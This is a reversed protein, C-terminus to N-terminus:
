ETNEGTGDSDELANVAEKEATASSKIGAHVSSHTKDIVGVDDMGEKEDQGRKILRTREIVSTGNSRTTVKETLVTGDAQAYETIVIDFAVPTYANAADVAATKWCLGATVFWMIGAFIACYAAYGITCGNNCADSAFFLLTLLELVGCLV